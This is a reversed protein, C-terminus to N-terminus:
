NSVKQRKRQFIQLLYRHFTVVLRGSRRWGRDIMEQYDNVSLVDFVLGQFIM